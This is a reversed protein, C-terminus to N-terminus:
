ELILRLQEGLVLPESINGNDRETKAQKGLYINGSEIIIDNQVSLTLHNGSGIHINKFSSMFMDDKRSNFIIRDSHFLM